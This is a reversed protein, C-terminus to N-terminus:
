ELKDGMFVQDKLFINLKHNVDLTALFIKNLEKNRNKLEKELWEKTKGCNNLNQIMINGDIIVNACLGVFERKLKLDKRTTPKYDSKPLISIKGNVEMVAYAIESIDFYGMERCEELFDNIDFRVKKFSDELLRGDEIMVVSKGKFYRRLVISKMTLISILYAAFGFFLVAVTAHMWHSDLNITMEAAFNGISIGIVYDFVSLQSVQKKGLMKTVLFLTGLSIMARLLVRLIEHIDMYNVM